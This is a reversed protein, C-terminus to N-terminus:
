YTLVNGAPVLARSGATGDLHGYVYDGVTLGSATTLITALGNEPVYEIVLDIIDGKSLSVGFLPDATGFGDANFGSWFSCLSGVPPSSSIKGFNMANGTCTVVQSPAAESFWELSATTMQLPNPPSGTNDGMTFIIIRRLRIGAYALAVNTSSTACGYLGLLEFRTIAYTGDVTCEFRFKREQIPLARYESLISGGPHDRRVNSRLRNQGRRTGQRGRNMGRNSPM